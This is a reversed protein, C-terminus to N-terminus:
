RIRWDEGAAASCDSIVLKTGNQINDGPDDLCRGSKPNQLTGNARPKWQQNAGGNCTWLEVPTGAAISNGKVEMCTGFVRVTGDPKVRWRQNTNGNCSWAEVLTGNATKSGTDDLCLPAIRSVVPGAPTTWRQNTGTGCSWIELKTGNTTRYGPDDLCKGSALNVLHADLGIRWQEAGSGSCTDLVVATGNATGGNSVDLCKGYIRVTRDQAMTWNQNAGGNCSWLDIQTGSATSSGPDDLCKGGYDLVVRGTPGTNPAASVTWTFSTTGTAGLDGTATVTVQATGPTTLWGSILGTDSNISLGAPLGTATYSLKQGWAAALSHARLWVPAGVAGAQNGTVTGNFYSHDVDKSSIGPVAGTSTYQWFTWTSWGAPLPPSSTGYAAVWLREASFATSNGTCTNWWDATSYIMPLQGIKARIENNFATIWSVMQSPTLNYCEKGYPNYEIDLLVPLNNGSTPYSGNIATLFYDAQVTGSATVSGGTTSDPIGFEYATVYLGAKSAATIDGSYYPNTYYNGETAKVAAFKYGAGAVQGWDIAAGNPHQVSAVDIGQPGSTVASATPTIGDALKRLLQPSHTMAANSGRSLPSSSVTASPAADRQSRAVLGTAVSVPGPKQPRHPSHTVAANSGGGPPSSSVTASPAAGHQSGAM